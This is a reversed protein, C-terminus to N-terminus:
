ALFKSLTFVVPFKLTFPTILPFTVSSVMGVKSILIRDSLADKLNASRGFRTSFM